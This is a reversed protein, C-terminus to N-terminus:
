DSSGEVIQFNADSLRDAIKIDYMSTLAKLHDTSLELDPVRQVTTRSVVQGNKKLVWYSMLKGIRHSVGLWRGVEPPGM